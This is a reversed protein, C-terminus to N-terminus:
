RAGGPVPEPARNAAADMSPQGADPKVNVPPTAPAARRLRGTVVVLVILIIVYIGFVLVIDRGLPLRGLRVLPESSNLIPAVGPILSLLNSANFIAHQLVAYALAGFGLWWRRRVGKGRLLYYWGLAGMGAGVGHLLGAGLREIAVTIWDAQGMGFYGVTEIVAFGTGAALGVLFAENPGRIRPLILVAGLPKVGEEVLPAIVSLLLFLLVVESSSSPSFSQLLNPNYPVNLFLAAVLALVGELIVAVLVAGTAGYSLSVMAHRWTTPYNLRHAAFAFIALAPLLGALLVLPLIAFGSGPAPEANWLVVGGAIAAVTLGLFIWASPFSFRPSPRRLIAAIGYALGAGGGALGAIVLAAIEALAALSDLGGRAGAVVALLGLILGSLISLGSFSTVIWAIVLRYTEGPARRPAAPPYYSTYAYSAYTPYYAPYQYPSPPYGPYNPYGYYGAGYGYAYAAGYPSYPTYEPYAAYGPTGAPAGPANAVPAPRPTPNNM